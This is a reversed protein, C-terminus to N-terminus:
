LGDPALHGRLFEAQDAALRDFPDGLYVGLHPIGGYRRLEGRPARRAARIAPGNYLMTEPEVIQVLLPCEVKRAKTVPRHRGLQFLLRPAVENRWPSDPGVLEPVLAWDADSAIMAKSGAPGIAPIVRPPRGRAAGVADRTAATALSALRRPTLGRPPLAGDVLPSQAIAAAIWQHRAAAAIAHGGSFSTGWVAVRDGDVDGRGRAYSLAADYDEYQRRLNIVQRPEGGSAGFGRYDFVLAAMGQGAFLEAYAPLRVDRTVTFGHALVVCPAPGAADQAPYFWAALDAGGVPIRVEEREM